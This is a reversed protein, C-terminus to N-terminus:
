WLLGLGHLVHYMRKKMYANLCYDRGNYHYVKVQKTKVM